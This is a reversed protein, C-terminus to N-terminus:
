LEVIIYRKQLRQIVFTHFLIIMQLHHIAGSSFVVFNYTNRESNNGCKRCKGTETWLWLFPKSSWQKVISVYCNNNKFLQFLLLICVYTYISYLNKQIKLSFALLGHFQNMDDVMSEHISDNVYCIKNIFISVISRCSVEIVLQLDM